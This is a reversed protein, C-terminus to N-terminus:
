NAIFNPRVTAKKVILNKSYKVKYGEPEPISNRKFFEAKDFKVRQGTYVGAKSDHNLSLTM